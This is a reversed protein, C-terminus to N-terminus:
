YIFAPEEFDLLYMIPLLNLLLKEPFMSTFLMKLILAAALDDSSVKSISKSLYSDNISSFKFYVM